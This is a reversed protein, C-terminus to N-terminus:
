ARQTQNAKMWSHEETQEAGWRQILDMQGTESGSSCVAWKEENVTGARWLRSTDPERIYNCVPIRPMPIHQISILCLLVSLCIKWLGKSLLVDAPSSTQHQLQCKECRKHDMQIHQGRTYSTIYQSKLVGSDGYRSSLLDKKKIQEILREYQFHGM